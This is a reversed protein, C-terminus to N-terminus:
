YFKLLKQKDESDYIGFKDKNLPNELGMTIKDKKKFSEYIVKKTNKDPSFGTEVDVIVFNIDKPIKFPYSDRKKVVKKVFKKFVPLAAKAGTEYKGLSKPEDFGVYVGIVLKSTYGIFWADM